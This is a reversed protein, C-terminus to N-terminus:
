IHFLYIKSGRERFVLDFRDSRLAQVDLYNSTLEETDMINDSNVPSTAVTVSIQMIILLWKKTM